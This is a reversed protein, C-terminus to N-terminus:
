SRHTELLRIYDMPTNIEDFKHDGIDIGLIPSDSDYVLNQGVFLNQYTRCNRRWSSLLDPSSIKYIGVAEPDIVNRLKGQYLESIRKEKDMSVNLAGLTRSDRVKSLILDPGMKEMMHILEPEIMLDGSIVYCPEENLALNLSCSNNTMAWDPNYIYNLDPHQSMVNIARYGVVVTIDMGKFAAQYKEIIKKGSKPDKLLLKNYGDLQYGQGAALVIVRM